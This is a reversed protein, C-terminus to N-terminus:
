GCPNSVDLDVDPVFGGSERAAVLAPETFTRLLVVSQTAEPGTVNTEVTWVIGHIERDGRQYRVLAGPSLPIRPDVVLHVSYALGSTERGWREAAIQLDRTTYAEPFQVPRSQRVGVLAEVEPLAIEAELTVPVKLSRVFQGQPPNAEELPGPGGIWRGTETDYVQDTRVRSWNLVQGETIEETDRTYQEVSQQTLQYSPEDTSGEAQVRRWRNAQAYTRVIPYYQPCVGATEIPTHGYNDRSAALVGQFLETDGNANRFTSWGETTSERGTVLFDGSLHPEIFLNETNTQLLSLRTTVPQVEPPPVFEGCPGTEGGPISGGPVITNNPLYGWTEVTVSVATDGVFRSKIVQYENNSVFWPETNAPDWRSFDTEETSRVRKGLDREFNNYAPVVSFPLNAPADLQGEICDRDTLVIAQDLVWQRRPTAVLEGESTSRVDWNLPEYLQALFDWPPGEVFDPNLGEVLANGGWNGPLGRVRAFVRAATGTTRPLPGCYAELAVNDSQRKLLFLDGVRVAVSSLNRDVIQFSPPEVVFGKFLNVTVGAYRLAIEVESGPKLHASEQDLVGAQLPALLRILGQTEGHLPRMLDLGTMHDVVDVGGITVSAGLVSTVVRQSPVQPVRSLSAPNDKNPPGVGPIVSGPPRFASVFDATLTLGGTLDDQGWNIKLGTDRNRATLELTM